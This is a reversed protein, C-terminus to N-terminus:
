GSGATCWGRARAARAFSRGPMGPEPVPLPSPEPPGFAEAAAPLPASPLPRFLPVDGPASPLSVRRRQPRRGGPEHRRPLRLGRTEASVVPAAALFSAAGRPLLM